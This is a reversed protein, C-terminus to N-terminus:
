SNPSMVKVDSQSVYESVIQMETATMARVDDLTISQNAKTAMVQFTRIARAVNGDVGVLAQEIKEQDGLTLPIAKSFDVEKGNMLIKM